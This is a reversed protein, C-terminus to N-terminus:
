ILNVPTAEGVTAPNPRIEGLVKLGWPEIMAQRNAIPNGRMVPIRRMM